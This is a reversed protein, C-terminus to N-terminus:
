GVVEVLERGLVEGMDMDPAACDPDFLAYLEAYREVLMDWDRRREAPETPVRDRIRELITLTCNMFLRPDSEDPLLTRLTDAIGSMMRRYQRESKPSDLQVYVGRHYDGPDADPCLHLWCQRRSTELGLIARRIESEDSEILDVTVWVLTLGLLMRRNARTLTLTSGVGPRGGPLPVAQHPTTADPANAVPRHQAPAAEVAPQSSQFITTM